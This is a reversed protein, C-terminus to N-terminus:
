KHVTGKNFIITKSIFLIYRNIINKEYVFGPLQILKM